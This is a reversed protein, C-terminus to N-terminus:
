LLGHKKLKIRDHMIMRRLHDETVRFENVQKQLRDQQYLLRDIQNIARKYAKSKDEDSLLNFRNIRKQILLEDESLPRPKVPRRHRQEKEKKHQTILTLAQDHDKIEFPYIAEILIALSDRGFNKMRLFEKCTKQTIAEITLCNFNYLVNLTRTNLKLQSVPTDKTIIQETKKYNM